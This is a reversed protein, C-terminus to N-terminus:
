WLFFLTLYVTSWLSFSTMCTTINGYWLVFIEEAKAPDGGDVLAYIPHIDKYDPSNMEYNHALM